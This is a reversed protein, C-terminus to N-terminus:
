NVNKANMLEFILLFKKNTAVVLVFNHPPIVQIVVFRNNGNKIERKVKEKIRGLISYHVSKGYNVKWATLLEDQIAVLEYKSLDHFTKNALDNRKNTIHNYEKRIKRILKRRNNSGNKTKALQKQLRKLRETEKISANIKTGNSLTLSVSCGM